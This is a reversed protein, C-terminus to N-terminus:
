DVLGEFAQKLISEQEIKHIVLSGVATCASPKRGVFLPRMEVTREIREEIAKWAGM